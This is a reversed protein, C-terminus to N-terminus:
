FFIFQTLDASDILIFQYISNIKYALFSVNLIFFATLAIAYFKYPNAEERELQLLVQKNFTSQIIRMVKEISAAKILALLALCIFLFVSPWILDEAMNIAPGEHQKQLLHEAFIHEFGSVM